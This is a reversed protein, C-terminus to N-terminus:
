FSLFSSNSFFVIDIISSLELDISVTVIQDNNQTPRVLKNYDNLLHDYLNRSHEDAAILCVLYIFIAIKTVYIMMQVWWSVFYDRFFINDKGIFYYWIMFLQHYFSFEWPCMKLYQCRFSKCAYVLKLNIRIWNIKLIQSYFFLTKHTWKEKLINYKWIIYDLM